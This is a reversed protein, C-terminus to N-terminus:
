HYFLQWSRNASCLSWRQRECGVLVCWASVSVYLVLRVCEEILFWSSVFLFLHPWLEWSNPNATRLIKLIDDDGHRLWCWKLITLKCISHGWPAVATWVSKWVCVCVMAASQNELHQCYLPAQFLRTKDYLFASCFTQQELINSSAPFCVFQGSRGVRWGLQHWVVLSLSVCVGRRLAPPKDMGHASAMLSFSTTPELKFTSYKCIKIKFTWNCTQTSSPKVLMRPLLTAALLYVILLLM